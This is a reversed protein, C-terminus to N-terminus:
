LVCKVPGVFTKVRSPVLDGETHSGLVKGGDWGFRLIMDYIIM